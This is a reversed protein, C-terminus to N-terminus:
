QRRPQLAIHGQDRSAVFRSVASKVEQVRIRAASDDLVQRLAGSPAALGAARVLTAAAKGGSGALAVQLKARTSRSSNSQLLLNTCETHGQAAAAQTAPLETLPRGKIASLLGVVAGYDKSHAAATLAQHTNSAGAELLAKPIATSHLYKVALLLPQGQAYNPDAGHELLTRVVALYERHRSILLGQYGQISYQV